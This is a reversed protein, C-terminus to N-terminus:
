PLYYKREEDKRQQLDLDQKENGTKNECESKDSVKEKGGPQGIPPARAAALRKEPCSKKAAEKAPAAEMTVKGLPAYRLVPM